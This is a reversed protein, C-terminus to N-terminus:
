MFVRALKEDQQAAFEEDIQKLRDTQKARATHLRLTRYIESDGEIEHFADWLTREAERREDAALHARFLLLRAQTSRPRISVLQQADFVASRAQDSNLYMEARGSLAQENHSDIALIQDFRVKAEDPRGLQVLAQAYVGNANMNSRRVPLTALGQLAAVAARPQGIRNLFAAYYPKRDPPAAASLKLAEKVRDNGNWYRAWVDLVPIVREPPGPLALLKRSVRRAEDVEGAKFAAEVFQLAISPEDPSAALRIRQIQALKKWEGKREYLGGLGLLAPGDKPRARLQGELLETAGDVDGQRMLVLSKLLKAAGDTPSAALIQDAYAGAADLSGRRLEIFGYTLKVGPDSPALIELQEAHEQARDLNGGRLAIQMLIHLIEGNGRDLEHARTFAYYADGYSELQMQVKGLEMWYAPVDDEASVLKMLAARAAFLDGAAAAAQYEAYASQARTASSDCGGMMILGLAAALRM